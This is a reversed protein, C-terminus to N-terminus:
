EPATVLSRIEVKVAEPEMTSAINSAAPLHLRVPLEYSGPTTLESCDVFVTFADDGINELREAPGELTLTVGPPDFRVNIPSSSATVSKILANTWTRQITETVFSVRVTIEEPEVHSVWEHPTLVKVRKSFSAVRGEVDIPETDVAVFREDQLRRKPGRVRVSKPDYEVVPKGIMPTGTVRPERVQVPKEVERDFTLTVAGPDIAVVRVGTAGQIDRHGIVIRESEDLNSARPRVVAKLDRERLSRLDTLAGRFTVEVSPPDQAHIAIGKELKVEIPVDYTDQDSTAGRIAYFSLAALLLALLKIEKDKAVFALFQRTKTAM